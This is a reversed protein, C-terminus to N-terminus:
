KKISNKARYYHVAFRIFVAIYILIIIGYIAMVIYASTLGTYTLSRWALVFNMVFLCFLVILPIMRGKFVRGMMAVRSDDDSFIEEEGNMELAPKRFYSYEAYEQLYEWGCDEFMLIYEALNETRQKNYDLQYVVDEPECKEFHYVGFWNVKTFKWGENHRQRLYAEEKQHNFITFYRFEKKTQM